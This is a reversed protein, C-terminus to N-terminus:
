SPEIALGYKAIQNASWVRRVGTMLPETSILALKPRCRDFLALCKFQPNHRSRYIIGDPRQTHEFLARSWLGTTHYPMETSIRNDCSLKRLGVATLDVCHLTKCAITSISREVLDLERILMMSLRRLFVEAFAAEPQLAAYLVRYQRMPDDFRETLNKGFHLCAFSSRHIRFVLGEILKLPLQRSALDAPPSPLRAIANRAM